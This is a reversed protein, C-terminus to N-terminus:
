KGIIQWGSPYAGAYTANFDSGNWTWIWVDRAQSTWVIDSYGDGNYDGVAAVYYASSARAVATQTRVVTSGNMVWYAFAGASANRWVLDSKRDGNLDGAGIISWDPPYSGFSEASFGSGDGHWMWLDRASSTWVLDARGDCNFDGVAAVWYAASARAAVTVTRVVTSGDLIWYAFQGTAPNRWLLDAKGDGNVDAAAIPTWGDPYYGLLQAGFDGGTNNWLWVDRANSTWIADVRGDNNVDGSAAVWYAASARSTTTATRLAEGGNM